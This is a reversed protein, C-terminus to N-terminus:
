RTGEEKAIARYLTEFGGALFAERSLGMAKEIYHEKSAAMQMLGTLMGWFAFVTPLVELDPRFTGAEMGECLFRGMLGNIEEGVAFIEREVPLTDPSEWDINIERLALGFFFSDKEQYRRLAECVANYRGRIGEGRVLASSLCDRLRRMSELTLAAVIEEKGRFYVYLTAKSYGAERAIEEVTVSGLGRRAFLAAAAQAIRSRHAEAPEKKRRGM